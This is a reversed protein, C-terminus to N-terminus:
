SLDLLFERANAITKFKEIGEKKSFPKSTNWKDPHFQRSLIRFQIIVERRSANPLLDLHLLASRRTMKNNNNQNPPPSPPSTYHHQEQPPPSRNRANSRNNRDNNNTSYKTYTEKGLSKVM